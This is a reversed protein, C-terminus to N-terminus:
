EKTGVWVWECMFVRAFFLDACGATGIMVGVCSEAAPM